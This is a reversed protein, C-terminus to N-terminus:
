QPSRIEDPLEVSFEAVVPDHDSPEAYTGSCTAYLGTDRVASTPTIGNGASLVWDIGGGGNVVQYADEITCSASSGTVDTFSYPTKLLRAPTSTPSCNFDGTIFTPTIIGNSIITEFILERMARASEERAEPGRHDFHTNFVYFEQFTNKDRFKGWTIIRKTSADWGKTPLTPLGEALWVQDSELLTFKSKKYYIANYEGFSLGERGWGIWDYDEDLRDSHWTSTPWSFGSANGAYHRGEDLTRLMSRFGEQTGIFDPEYNNVVDIIACFREEWDKLGTDSNNDQRLNFTMVTYNTAGYVDSLIVQFTILILWLMMKVSKKM